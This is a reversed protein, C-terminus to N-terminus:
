SFLLSGIRVMTSGNAVALKYDGSMGMSLINFKEPSFHQAQFEDFIAKMTTFEKLTIEQDSTFTGMGMMGRLEIHEFAKVDALTSLLVAKDWGYKSEEQAIKVQLLVPIVRNNKAAAKDIERLLGLSDVSHILSVFPAIYKVKNKQLHGILHWEIDQPLQEHKDVLEQVRNEGFVRQGAEYLELIASHPQTKSVAVLEVSHEDLFAKLKQYM